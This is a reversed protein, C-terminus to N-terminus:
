PQIQLCFNWKHPLLARERGLACKGRYAFAADVNNSLEPFFESISRPYGPIMLNERQNYLWLQEGVFFMIRRRHIRMAADIKNVSNPFGLDAIPKPYGSRLVTGRFSWYQSGTFYYQHRRGRAYAADINSRLSPWTAVVPIVESSRTSTYYGNKFFYINRRITLAADMFLNPDCPPPEETPPQNPARTSPVASGYLSQIGQVDDNPLTYGDTDVYTYFPFMLANEDDSHDLGLSHGFEHAAVLFLNIGRLVVYHRYRLQQRHTLSATSPEEEEEEGEEDGEEEGEHSLCLSSMQQMNIKVSTM